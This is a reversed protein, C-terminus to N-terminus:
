TQLNFHWVAFQSPNPSNSCEGPSQGPPRHQDAYAEGGGGEDVVLEDDVNAVHAAVQEEVEEEDGEDLPGPACHTKKQGILEPAPPSM